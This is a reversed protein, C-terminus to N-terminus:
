RLGLPEPRAGRADGRLPYGLPPARRRLQGNHHLLALGVISAAVFHLPAQVLPGRLQRPIGPFGCWPSLFCSANLMWPGWAHAPGSPWFPARTEGAQTRCTAPVAPPILQSILLQPAEAM